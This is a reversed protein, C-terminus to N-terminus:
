NLYLESQLMKFASSFLFTPIITFLMLVFASLKRELLHNEIVKIVVLLSLSLSIMGVREAQSKGMIIINIMMLLLLYFEFLLFNYLNRKNKMYVYCFLIFSFIIAMFFLYFVGLDAGTSDSSKNGVVFPLFVFVGVVSSSFLVFKNKSSNFIFFLPLFLVAVNHTLASVVFFFYGKKTENRYSYSLALLLICMSFYQRYINQMGMLGPFFVVILLVFYIPLKFNYQAKLLVLLLLIDLFVFTLEESYFIEKYLFSSFFWYVPERLYFFSFLNDFALTNAYTNMDIDFGSYRVSISYLVFLIFTITLYVWYNCRFFILFPIVLIILVYFFLELTM